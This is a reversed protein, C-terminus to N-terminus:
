FRLKVGLALTFLEVNVTSPNRVFQVLRDDTAVLEFYGEMFRLNLAEVPRGM